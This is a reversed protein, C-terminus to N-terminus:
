PTSTTGADANASYSVAAKPTELASEPRRM